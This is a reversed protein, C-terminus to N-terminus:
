FLAMSLKRRYQDLVPDATSVHQTGALALTPKDKTSTPAPATPKPVPKSMVELIAVYTKRAKEDEWAKDRMIIELLEDMAQTFHGASFHVQALEFRTDFARPTASLLAQLADAPQAQQAAQLATLYHRHAVMRAEPLPGTARSAVPEFVAQAQALQAQEIFHRMLKLRLEDDTPTQALAQELAATPDTSAEEADGALPADAETEPTHAGASGDDAPVHKDIFERIKETPIAGVFGDV